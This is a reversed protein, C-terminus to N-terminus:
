VQKLQGGGGVEGQNQSGVEATQVGAKWFHPGRLLDTPAAGRREPSGSGDAMGGPAPVERLLQLAVDVAGRAVLDDDAGEGEIM